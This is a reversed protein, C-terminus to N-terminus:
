NEYQPHKIIYKAKEWLNRNELKSNENLPKDSIQQMIDFRKIFKDNRKMVAVDPDLGKMHAIEAAIAIVDGVEEEINEIDNNQLGEDLERVEDKLHAMAKNTDNWGFFGKVKDSLNINSALVSPVLDAESPLFVDGNETSSKFALLNNESRGMQSKMSNKQNSFSTGVSYANVSSIM